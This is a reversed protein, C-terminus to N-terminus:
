GNASSGYEQVIGIVIVLLKMFLPLVKETKKEGKRCRGVVLGVNPFTNFHSLGLNM